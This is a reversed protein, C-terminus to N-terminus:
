TMVIHQVIICISLFIPFVYTCTMMLCTARNDKEAVEPNPPPPACQEDRALECREGVLVQLQCGSGSDPCFSGNACLSPLEVGTGNALRVVSGKM